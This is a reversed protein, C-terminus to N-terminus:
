DTFGFHRFAAAQIANCTQQTEIIAAEGSGESVCVGAVLLRVHGDMVEVDFLSEIQKRDMILEKTLQPM